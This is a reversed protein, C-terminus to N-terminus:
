GCNKLHRYFRKKVSDESNMGGVRDAVANWSLLNLCRLKFILRTQPDEINLIYNMVKIRERELEVLKERIKRETEALETAIDATKDAPKGKSKCFGGFRVASPQARMTIKELEEKWAAIEKDMYYVQMLEEKTM